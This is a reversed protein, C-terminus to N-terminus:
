VITTRMTISWRTVTRVAKPVEHKWDTRAEGTMVYAMRRELPFVEKQGDKTFVMKAASGLSVGFVVPGYIDTDDIHAGIGERTLYRNIILQNFQESPFLKRAEAQLPLFIEPFELTEDRQKGLKMRMRASFKGAGYPIPQLYHTNEECWAILAVEYELPIFEPQSFFGNPM